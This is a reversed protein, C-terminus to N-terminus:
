FIFNPFAETIRTMLKEEKELPFVTKVKYKVSNIEGILFEMKRRGKSWICM